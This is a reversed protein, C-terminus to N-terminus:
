GTVAWGLRSEVVADACVEGFAMLVSSFRASMVNDNGPQVFKMRGAVFCVADAAQAAEQWAAVSSDGPILCIGDGHEMLRRVWPWPKSYPPNLWVRGEWPQSLGDEAVSYHRAAPIWPVGGPPAAPDLDFELGLADFIYPPTYWDDTSLEHELAFLRSVRDGGV